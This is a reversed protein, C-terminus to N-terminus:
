TTAILSWPQNQASLFFDDPRCQPLVAATVAPTKSPPAFLGRRKVFSCAKKRLLQAPISDSAMRRRRAFLLAEM